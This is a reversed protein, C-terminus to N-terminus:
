RNSMIRVCIRENLAGKAPDFSRAAPIQLAADTELVPPPRPQIASRRGNRAGAADM